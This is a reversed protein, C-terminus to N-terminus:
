MGIDRQINLLARKVSHQRLEDIYADIDVGVGPAMGLQALYLYGGLSEFREKGKAKLHEALLTIDVSGRTEETERIESFLNRGRITPFDDEKLARFVIKCKEPSNIMSGLICEEVTAPINEDTKTDIM